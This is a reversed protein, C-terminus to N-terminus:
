VLLFLEKLYICYVRSLKGIRKVESTSSIANSQYSFEITDDEVADFKLLLRPIISPNRPGISKLKCDKMEFRIFM